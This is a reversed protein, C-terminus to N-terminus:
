AELEFRCRRFNTLLHSPSRFFDLFDRQCMHRCSKEIPRSGKRISRPLGPGYRVVVEVLSYHNVAYRVTKCRPIENRFLM